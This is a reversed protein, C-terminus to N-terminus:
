SGFIPSQLWAWDLGVWGAVLHLANLLWLTLLVIAFTALGLLLKVTWHQRKVWEMWADYKARAFTLLRHAWSFETALIGLGVFVVVWGPGPYPILVFGLVLVATGIVGVAIRYALNLTRHSRIKERQERLPAPLLSSPDDGADGHGATDRGGGQETDAYKQDGGDPRVTSSEANETM